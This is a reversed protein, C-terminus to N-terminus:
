LWRRLHDVATAGYHGGFMVAHNLLPEVQWLDLRERWGDALPIAEEYAALV